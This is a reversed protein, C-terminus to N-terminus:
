LFFGGPRLIVRDNERYVLPEDGSGDHNPVAVAYQKAFRKYEFDGLAVSPRGIGQVKQSEAHLSYNWVKAEEITDLHLDISAPGFERPRPTIILDGRDVAYELDRDSLYM